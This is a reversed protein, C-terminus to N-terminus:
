NSSKKIRKKPNREILAKMDVDKWPTVNFGKEKKMTVYYLEQFGEDMSPIELQSAKIYIAKDPVRAKGTRKANREKCDRINSEFFYGIVKANYRLALEILSKRIEKSENNNDVVVSQKRSFANEILRTQQEDKTLGKRKKLM